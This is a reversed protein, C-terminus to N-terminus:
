NILSDAYRQAFRIFRKFEEETKWSYISKVEKIHNNSYSLDIRKTSLEGEEDILYMKQISKVNDISISAPRSFKYIAYGKKGDKNRFMRVEPHDTEDKGRKFQISVKKPINTM